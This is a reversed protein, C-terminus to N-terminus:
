AGAGSPASPSPAEAPGAQSDPEPPTGAAPTETEAPQEADGITAGVPVKPEAAEGRPEPEPDAAAQPPVDQAPGAAAYPEPEPSALITVPLLWEPVHAVVYSFTELERGRVADRLRVSLDEYAAILREDLILTDVHLALATRTAPEYELVATNGNHGWREAQIRGSETWCPCFPYTGLGTYQFRADRFNTMLSVTKPSVVAGSDWLALGWRALDAANSYLGGASWLLGEYGFEADRFQPHTNVNGPILEDDMLTAQLGNPTLLREHVADAFSQETVREIVLGLLYYGATSYEFGTGPPFALPQNVVVSFADAPNLADTAPVGSTHQLLQRLTIQRSRPYEPVYRQLRDDLTLRGEEALQLILAATFTKTISAINFIEGPQLPAGDILSVGTAASWFSGDARALAATAGGIEWDAAWGDLIAQLEADGVPRTSIPAAAIPRTEVFTAQANRLALGAGSPPAARAGIVLTGPDVAIQAAAVIAIAGLGAATAAALRGPLRAPRLSLGGPFLLRPPRRAALDELWGFLLVGVFTVALVILVSLSQRALASHESTWLLQNMSFLGAAHWLYISLARSNIWNVVSALRPYSRVSAALEGEFALAIFLWGLGVFLHAPYSANVVSGPVAQTTVWAASLAAFLAALVFRNRRSLRSFWGDHYAFGLMWFFGYLALDKYQWAIATGGRDFYELAAIALLSVALAGAPARRFAWLLAPSLLILWLICRLYWLTAWWTIGWETGRADWAPLLWLLVRWSDLPAYSGGTQWAHAAMISLAVAAFAWLPILLRRLRGFVVKTGPARDLSQAMLSGAVFFMAPMSAILYSIWAFGYTHWVLVRVLAVSRVVDLFANRSSPRPPAESLAPAPLAATM